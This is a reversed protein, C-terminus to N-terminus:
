RTVNSPASLLVTVPQQQRSSGGGLFVVALLLIGGAVLLTTKNIMSGVGSSGGGTGGTGGTDDGPVGPEGTKPDIAYTFDPFPPPTDAFILLSTPPPDPKVMAAQTHLQRRHAYLVYPTLAAYVATWESTFQAGITPPTTATDTDQAAHATRLADWTDNMDPHRLSMERLVYAFMNNNFGQRAILDATSSGTATDGPPKPQLATWLKDDGHKHQADALRLLMDDSWGTISRNDTQLDQASSEALRKDFQAWNGPGVGQELRKQGDPTRGIYRPVQKQISPAVEGYIELSKAYARPDNPDALLWIRRAKDIDLKVREYYGLQGALPYEAYDMGPEYGLADRIAGIPVALADGDWYMPDNKNAGFLEEGAALGPDGPLVEHQVITGPTPDPTQAPTFTPDPSAGPADWWTLEHKLTDAIGNVTVNITPNAGMWCWYTVLPGVNKGTVAYVEVRHARNDDPPPPPRTADRWQVQAETAGQFLGLNLVAKMDSATGERGGPAVYIPIHKGLGLYANTDTIVRLQATYQDYYGQLTVPESMTTTYYHTM